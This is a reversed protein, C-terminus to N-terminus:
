TLLAILGVKKLSEINTNSFFGIENSSSQSVILIGLGWIFYKIPQRAALLLAKDWPNRTSQLKLQIRSLLKSILFNTFFTIALIGIIKVLWHMKFQGLGTYDIFIEWYM